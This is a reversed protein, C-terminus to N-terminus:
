QVTCPLSRAAKSALCAPSCTPNRKAALKGHPELAFRNCAIVLLEDDPPRQPAQQQAATVAGSVSLAFVFWVFTQRPSPSEPQRVETKM